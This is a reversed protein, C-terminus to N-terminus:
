NIVTIDGHKEVLETGPIDIILLYVYVGNQVFSGGMTGDWGQLPDNTDFDNNQFVLSGYRDYIELTIISIDNDKTQPYFIGEIPDGKFLINPAFILEERVVDLSVTTTESCGNVDVLTVSYASDETLDEFSYELCDLCNDPLPPSWVVEAINSDDINTMFIVEQDDGYEVTYLSSDVTLEVFGDPCDCVPPEITAFATCLQNVDSYTVEVTEGIPVNLISFGNAFSTVSYNDTSVLEADTTIFINYEQLTEFNCELTYEFLEAIALEKVEAHTEGQCGEADTVIVSLEGENSVSLSAETSGDSWLYSEYSESLTLTTSEGSCFELIGEIVPTPTPNITLSKSTVISCGTNVDTVTVSYIGAESVEISASSENTSWSEVSLAQNIVSFVSSEGECVVEEGSIYADPFNLKNVSISTSSTCGFEDTVTVSVDESQTLTTTPTSAGTSWLYQSYPESVNLTTSGEECFELDGEIQPVFSDSITVDVTSSATCGFDDTVLLTYTGTQTVYLVRDALGTSWMYSQFGATGSINGGEGFCIMTEGEIDVAIEPAVLVGLSQTSECGAADYVTVSYIDSETVEISQTVEGTSWLYSDYTDTSLVGVENPCLLSNGYLTPQIVEGSSVTASTSGTCGFSDTVTVSYTGEEPSISAQNGGNSWEYTEYNGNVVLTTTEGNCILLSGTILPNLNSNEIVTIQSSESCGFEDSVTVSYLGPQNVIISNTNFGNSWLVNAYTGDLSLETFSGECYGANGEISLQVPAVEDVTVIASGECGSNDTVTISYDGGISVSISQTMEGTSWAYTNFTGVSLISTEGPCLTLDGAITPLLENEENILLNSTATCGDPSTVIVSIDGPTSVTIENTSEGTSWEVLTYNGNVSLLTNGGSCFAGSGLIDVTVEEYQTVEVSSVGTCGDNDTVTVQYTGGQNVTLTTTNDGTNWLVSDYGDVSLNTSEDFCLDLTGAINPTVEPLVVVDVSSSSQCGNMDSITVTYSNPNTVTISPTDDGTSWLYSTMNPNASISSNSGFCLITNGTIAATPLLPEITIIQQDVVINGCNDQTTWTRTVTGGDCDNAEILESGVVEYPVSACNDIYSVNPVPGIDSLSNLTIDSPLNTAIPAESDEWVLDVFSLDCYCEQCNVFEDISSGIQPINFIGDPFANYSYATYTGCSNFNYQGVGGEVVYIIVDSEDTVFVWQEYGDVTTFGLSEFTISSNPCSPTADITGANAYDDLVTVSICLPEPDEEVTICPPDSVDVCIEYDGPNDFIIDQSTIDSGEVILEDNQYWHYIVDRPHPEVSYTAPADVVHCLIADGEIEGVLPDIAALGCQGIVSVEVSCASGCWGDVLVYYVKEYEMGSLDLVRTYGDVAGEVGTDCAIASAPDLSCDSYVATQLGYFETSCAPGVTCNDYFIELTIEDCWAIFGFWTPNQSVTTLEEGPCMPQPGDQSHLYPSMQYTYGDLDGIDCLIPATTCKCTNEDGTTCIEPEGNIQGTVSLAFLCLISTAITHKIAQSFFRM